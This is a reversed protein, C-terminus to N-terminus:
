ITRGNWRDVPATQSEPRACLRKHLVVTVGAGTPRDIPIEEYPEGRQIPESCRDCMM